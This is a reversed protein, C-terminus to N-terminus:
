ECAAMEGVADEMVSVCVGDKVRGGDGWGVGRRKASARAQGPQVGPESAGGQQISSAIFLSLM